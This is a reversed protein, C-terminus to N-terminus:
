SRGLAIVAFVLLLAVGNVTWGLVRKGPPAAWVVGVGVLHATMALFAALGIGLGTPKYDWPLVRVCVLTGWLLVFGVGALVLSVRNAFRGEHAEPGPAVGADAAPARYPNPTPNPEDPSV